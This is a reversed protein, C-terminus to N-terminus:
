LTCPEKEELRILTELETFRKNKTGFDPDSYANPSALFESLSQKEAILENINLTITPM